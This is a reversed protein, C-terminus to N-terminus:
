RNGNQIPAIPEFELAYSGKALVAQFIAVAGNISRAAHIIESKFVETVRCGLHLEVLEEPYFSLYSAPEGDAVESPVYIREEAEYSWHTSKTYVLKHNFAHIDSESMKEATSDISKYFSPRDDTYTVPKLLRLYSDRALDPRFGLVVGRHQDAYHAWMLLNTHNRTACFIGASQFQAVVQDRQREMTEQLQAMEPDLDAIGENAIMAEFEARKEPGSAKILESMAVVKVADLQMMESFKLPDSVLLEIADLRHQNLLEALPTDFLDGIYVDFPDNMESPRTFRLTRNALIARAGAQGVYKYVIEPLDPHAM